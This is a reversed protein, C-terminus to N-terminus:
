NSEDLQTLRTRVHPHLRRGVVDSEDSLPRRGLRVLRGLQEGFSDFGPQFPDREIEFLAPSPRRRTEVRDDEVRVPVSTDDVEGGKLSRVLQRLAFAARREAEAAEVTRMARAAVEVYAREAAARERSLAAAAAEHERVLKPLRAAADVREAQRLRARASVLGAAAETSRGHLDAAAVEAEVQDLRVGDLVRREEVEALAHKVNVWTAHAEAHAARAADLEAAVDGVDIEVVATM